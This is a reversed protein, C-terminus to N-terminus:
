CTRIAGIPPTIVDIGSVCGTIITPSPTPAKAGVATGAFLTACVVLLFKRM